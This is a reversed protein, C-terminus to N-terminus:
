SQFVNRDAFAAADQHAVDLDAEEAVRVAEEGDVIDTGMAAARQMIPEDGLTNDGAGPVLPLKLEVIADAM